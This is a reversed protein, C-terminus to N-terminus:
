EKSIIIKIKNSFFIDIPRYLANPIKSMIWFALLSIRARAFSFVYINHMKRAQYNFSFHRSSRGELPSNLYSIHYNLLEEQLNHFICGNRLFRLWLELDEAQHFEENYTGFKEFVNSRLIVSPHSIASSFLFSKVIEDHFEPYARITQSNDYSMWAGLVDVEPHNELYKIQKEFRESLCIDDSDIRAIYKSNALSIGKNLSAPFGLNRDNYYVDVRENNRAYKNFIDTNSDGFEVIIVLRFFTYTQGLISDISRILLNEDECYSTMVVTLLLKKSESM